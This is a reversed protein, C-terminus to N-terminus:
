QEHQIYVKNISNGIKIIYLNNSWLETNIQTQTSNGIYMIKGLYNYVIVEVIEGEYEFELTNNTPNPYINIQKQQIINIGVNERCKVYLEKYMFTDCNSCKNYFKTKILYRGTDFTVKFIRDDSLTDIKGTKITKRITFYKICTDKSGLEFTYNNCKNSYFIGKTAGIGPKGHKTVKYTIAFEALYRGIMDFKIEVNVYEKGNHIGVVSGVM